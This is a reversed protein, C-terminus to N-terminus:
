AEIEVGESDRQQQEKRLADRRAYYYKKQNARIVNMREEDTTYRPPRGIVKDISIIRKCRTCACIIVRCKKKNILTETRYLRSTLFDCKCESLDKSKQIAASATKVATPSM